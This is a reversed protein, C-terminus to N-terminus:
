PHAPQRPLRWLQNGPGLVGDPVTGTRWIGRSATALLRANEELEESGRDIRTDTVRIALYQGFTQVFEPQSRDLQVVRNRVRLTPIVGDVIRDPLGLERAQSQLSALCVSFEAESLQAQSGQSTCLCLLALPASHLLRRLGPKRTGATPTNSRTM